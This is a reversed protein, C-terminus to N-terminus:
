NVIIEDTKFDYIGYVKWQHNGTEDSLHLIKYNGGLRDGYENLELLGTIGTYNKCVNYIIGELNVSKDINYEKLSKHAVFLADYAIFAYEEPKRGLEQELLDSIDSEVGADFITAKFDSLRAYDFANDNTLISKNGAYASAGYWRLSDLNEYLDEPNRNAYDLLETTEDYCMTFVAINTKNKTKLIEDIEMDVDDLLKIVNDVDDYKHSYNVTGGSLEFNEKFELFLEEGWIGSYICIANTINDNRSLRSIAKAQYKDSPVLRMFNDDREELSIAVASYSLLVIDNAIAYEKLYGSTTSSYPGIVINIGEAKLEKLRELATEKDTQTDKFILDISENDSAEAKLNQEAIELAAKVAEGTSSGAGTLPVLAGIKLVNEDPSNNSNDECAILIVVLLFLLYKKM